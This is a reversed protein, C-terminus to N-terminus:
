PVLFCWRAARLAVVWTIDGVERIRSLRGRGRALGAEFRRLFACHLFYPAHSDNFSEGRGRRRAAHLDHRVM